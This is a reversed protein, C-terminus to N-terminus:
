GIEVFDVMVYCAENADVSEIMKKNNKKAWLKPWLDDLKGGQM